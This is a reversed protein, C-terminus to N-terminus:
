EEKIHRKPPKSKEKNSNINCNSKTGSTSQPKQKYHADWMPNTLSRQNRLTKMFYFQLM